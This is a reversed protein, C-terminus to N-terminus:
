SWTKFNLAEKKETMSTFYTSKWMGNIPCSKKQKKTSNKTPKSTFTKLKKPYGCLSWGEVIVRWFILYYIPIIVGWFELYTCNSNQPTFKVSTLSSIFSSISILLCHRSLWHLIITCSRSSLPSEIRAYQSCFPM